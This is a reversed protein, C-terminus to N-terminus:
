FRMSKLALLLLFTSTNKALNLAWVLILIHNRSTRGCALQAWTHVPCLLTYILGLSPLYACDPLKNLIKVGMRPALPLGHCTDLTPTMHAGQAHIWLPAWRCCPSRGMTHPQKLEILFPSFGQNVKTAPAMSSLPSPPSWCPPGATSITPWLHQAPHSPFSSLFM